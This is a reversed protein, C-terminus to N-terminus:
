GHSRDQASTESVWILLALKNRLWMSSDATFQPLTSAITLYPQLMILMGKPASPHKDMVDFMESIASINESLNDWSVEIHTENTQTAEQLHIIVTFHWECLLLTAPFFVTDRLGSRNTVVANSAHASSGEVWSHISLADELDDKWEQLEKSTSDYDV